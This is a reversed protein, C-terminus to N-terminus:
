KVFVQALFNVDLEVFYPMSWSMTVIFNHVWHIYSCPVSTWSLIEEEEEGMATVNLKLEFSPPNLNSCSSTSVCSYM